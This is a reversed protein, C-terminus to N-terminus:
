AARQAQEQLPTWYQAQHPMPATLAGHVRVRLVQDERLDQWGQGRGRKAKGSRIDAEARHAGTSLDDKHCLDGRLGSNGLTPRWGHSGKGMTRAQPPGSQLWRRRCTTSLTARYLTDGPMPRSSSNPRRRTRSRWSCAWLPSPPHRRWWQLGVHELECQLQRRLLSWAWRQAFTSSRGAAEVLDRDIDGQAKM